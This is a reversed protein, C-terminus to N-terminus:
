NVTRLREGPRRTVLLPSGQGGTGGVNVSHWWFVDENTNM